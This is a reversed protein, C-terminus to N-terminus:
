VWLYAFSLCISIALFLFSSCPSGIDAISSSCGHGGTRKRPNEAKVVSSDTAIVAAVLEGASKVPKEGRYEHKCIGKVQTGKCERVRQGAGVPAMGM